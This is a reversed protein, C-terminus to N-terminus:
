GYFERSLLTKVMSALAQLAGYLHPFRATDAVQQEESLHIFGESSLSALAYTGLAKAATWTTSEVIHFLM